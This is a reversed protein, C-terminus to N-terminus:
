SNAAAEVCRSYVWGVEATAPDAVKVRNGERETARLKLGRPWGAGSRGPREAAHSQCEAFQLRSGSCYQVRYSQLGFLLGVVSCPLASPM